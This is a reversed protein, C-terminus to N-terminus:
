KFNELYNEILNSKLTNYNEKTLEIREMQQSISLIEKIYTDIHPSNFTLILERTNKAMSRNNWIKARRLKNSKTLIKYMNVFLANFNIVELVLGSKKPYRSLIPSFGKLKSQNIDSFFLINDQYGCGALIKYNKSITGLYAKNNFKKALKPYSKSVEELAEFNKSALKHLQEEINKMGYTISAQSVSGHKQRFKDIYIQKNKDALVIRKNTIELYGTLMIQHSSYTDERAQNSEVWVVLDSFEAILDEGDWMWDFAKNNVGMPIM